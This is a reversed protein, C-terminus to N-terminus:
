FKWSGPLKAETLGIYGVLKGDTLRIPVAVLGKMMGRPAFGIGIRDADGPDIGLAVVADHGPELYDLPKFGGGAEGGTEKEKSRQGKPSDQSAAGQLWAAADKINLGKTHAVLAIVDGGKGATFCYYLGKDPTIALNRDGSSECTPCKGRMSAGSKNLNLGLRHAVDGIPNNAKIEEFDLLAM